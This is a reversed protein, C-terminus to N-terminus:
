QAQGAFYFEGLMSISLEPLQEGKTSQNVEGSVRRFMTAVEIGRTPAHKLFASTFPSNRAGSVGDRAVKGAQTAFATIIGQAKDLRALGRTVEGSRSVPLISRLKDALPNDRCADLMVIRVSKARALDAIVDDVKSMEYPLDIEDGLKADIPMLYNMGQYQMGHGAYFFLAADSDRALHAFRRFADDMSRKDLDSEVIAEFGLRKLAAGVDIADNKPNALPLTNKYASNGIVLAVRKEPSAVRDPAAAKVLEGASLKAIQARALSAYLGTTHISLFAEWAQKTGIQAALEYDRRIEDASISPLAPAATGPNLTPQRAALPPPVLMVTAGGLSGYVFPEQKNNTIKLVEDRIRGFAIRIDLGPTAINNLLALTFPSYEGIGDVATSGAKASFAILTDSSTPEIRALGGSIARTGVTRRMTRAFPNDRSADLLVLRLRKAADITRVLRDLSIAEDEVDADRELKADVPILYNVGDIELGHGAFYVVAIDSDQVSSFFDRTARRMALSGLNEHSSVEDFGATRFLAAIARADNAPTSLKGVNRYDANGIVLAVRKEAAAPLLSSLLALTSIVVTTAFHRIRM